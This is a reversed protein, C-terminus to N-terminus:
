RDEDYDCSHDILELPARRLRKAESSADFIANRLYDRLEDTSTLTGLYETDPLQNLALLATALITHARDLTAIDRDALRQAEDTSRAESATPYAPHIFNM